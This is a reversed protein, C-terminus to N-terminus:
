QAKRRKSKSKRQKKSKVSQPEEKVKIQELPPRLCEECLLTNLEEQSRVLCWLEKGCKTCLVKLMEILYNRGM